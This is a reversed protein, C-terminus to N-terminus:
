APAGDSAPAREPAANSEPEPAREPAANSEPEPARESAANSEPEPARQSPAYYHGQYQCSPKHSHKDGVRNGKDNVTEGYPNLCCYWFQHSCGGTEPRCIVHQCTDETKSIPISCNPCPKSENAILARSQQEEESQALKREEDAKFEECNRLLDGGHVKGCNMCPIATQDDSPISADSSSRANAHDNASKECKPCPFYNKANREATSPLVAMFGCKGCRVLGALTHASAKLGYQEELDRWDVPEDPILDPGMRLLPLVIEPDAPCQCPLVCTVEFKQARSVGAEDTRLPLAGVVGEIQTKIWGLLCVRCFLLHRNEPALVDGRSKAKWEEVVQSLCKESPFQMESCPFEGGCIACVFEPLVPWEEKSTIPSAMSLGCTMKQVDHEHEEFSAELNLPGRVMTQSTEVHQRQAAQRSDERERELKEIRQKDAAQLRRSYAADEDLQKQDREEADRQMGETKATLEALEAALQRHHWHEVILELKAKEDTLRRHRELERQFERQVQQLRDSM